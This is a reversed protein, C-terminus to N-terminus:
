WGRHKIREREFRAYDLWECYIHGCAPCCVHPGPVMRFNQGCKDCRFSAQPDHAM